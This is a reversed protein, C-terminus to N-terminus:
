REVDLQDGVKTNTRAVTGAPVEIVYRAGGHGIRARWAPMNEEIDVIRDYRNVFLVDIPIRMFCTHISTSRTILLGDGAPLNKRGMLGMLRNWLNGAVRGKEVIVNGTDVNQVYLGM